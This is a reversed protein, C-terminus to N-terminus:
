PRPFGTRGTFVGQTLIDCGTNPRRRVDRGSARDGSGYEDPVHVGVRNLDLCYANYMEARERVDVLLGAHKTGVHKRIFEDAIFLKQCETCRFKGDQPLIFSSILKNIQPAIPRAFRATLLDDSPNTRMQIRLTISPPLDDLSDRGHKDTPLARLTVPVRSFDLPSRSEHASYYDYMHVRSLYLIYMDLSIKEGSNCEQEDALESSTPNNTFSPQDVLNSVQASESKMQDVVDSIIPEKSELEETQKLDKSNAAQNNRSQTIHEIKADLLAVTEEFEIGREKDLCAVLDKVDSKDQGVRKMLDWRPNVRIRHRPPPAHMAASIVMENITCRDLKSLAQQAYQSTEFVIWALSALNRDPRPDSMCVRVFGPMDLDLCKQLLSIRTVASPVHNLFVCGFYDHVQPLQWERSEDHNISDYITSELQKIFLSRNEKVINATEIQLVSKKAPHYKELFWDQTSYLKFGSTLQKRTYADTYQKYKKQRAALPLSSPSRIYRHYEDLRLLHPLGLPDSDANPSRSRSRRRIYDRM